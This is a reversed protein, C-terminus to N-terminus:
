CIVIKMLLEINTLWLSWLFDSVFDAFCLNLNKLSWITCHWSIFHWICQHMDSRIICVRQRETQSGHPVYREMCGDRCTIRSKIITIMTVRSVNKLIYYEDHHAIRGEFHYMRKDCLVWWLWTEYATCIVYEFLYYPFLWKSLLVCNIVICSYYLMLLYCYAKLNNEVNCLFICM